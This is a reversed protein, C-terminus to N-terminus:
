LAYVKFMEEIDAVVLTGFRKQLPQGKEFMIYTPVSDVGYRKVIKRSEDIDVLFVKKDKNKTDFKELVSKTTKCPLFKDSVFVVLLRESINKLTDYFNNENLKEIM